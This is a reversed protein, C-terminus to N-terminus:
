PLCTDRLLPLLVGLREPDEALLSVLERGANVLYDPQGARAAAATRLCASLLDNGAQAAMLLRLFGFSQTFAAVEEPECSFVFGHIRPPQPPLLHFVRGEWTYGVVVATFRTRMVRRFHPNEEYIAEECSLDAGRAVVPRSPDVPETRIDQVVAYIEVGPATSALHVFSGFPPAAYLDYSQAQIERISVAITEGVRPSM